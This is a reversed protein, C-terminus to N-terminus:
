EPAGFLYLACFAAVVVAGVVIGAIAAMSKEAGTAAPRTKKLAQIGAGGVLLSFAALVALGLACGGAIAVPRSGSLLGIVLIIASASAALQWTAITNRVRRPSKDWEFPESSM